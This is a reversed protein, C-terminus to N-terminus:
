FSVSRIIFLVETRWNLFDNPLKQLLSVKRFFVIFNHKRDSLSYILQAEKPAKEFIALRHCHLYCVEPTIPTDRHCTIEPLRLAEEELCEMM